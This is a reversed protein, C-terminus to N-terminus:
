PAAVVYELSGSQPDDPERTVAFAVSDAVRVLRDGRRPRAGSLKAALEARDLTLLRVRDIGGQLRPDDPKLNTLAGLFVAGGFSFAEGTHRLARALAAAHFQSHASM